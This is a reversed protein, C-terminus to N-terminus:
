QRPGDCRAIEGAPKKHVLTGCALCVVRSQRSHSHTDSCSLSLGSRPPRGITKENAAGFSNARKLFESVTRNLFVLPAPVCMGTRVPAHAYRYRYATDPM